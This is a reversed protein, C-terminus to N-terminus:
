RWPAEAVRVCRSYHLSDDKASGNIKELAPEKKECQPILHECRDSFKCGQPLEGPKPVTGPIPKLGKGKTPNFM